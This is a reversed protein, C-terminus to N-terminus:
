KVLIKKGGKIYIGKQLKTVRRGSLDYVAENSDTEGATANGIGTPISGAPKLRWINGVVEINETNYTTITGQEATPDTCRPNGGYNTSLTVIDNSYKHVLRFSAPAVESAIIQFPAKEGVAVEGEVPVINKVVGELVANQGFRFSVISKANAANSITYTTDSAATFVWKYHADDATLNNWILSDTASAAMAMTKEPQAVTFDRYASLIYYAKNPDFAITEEGALLEVAAACAELDKKAVADKIAALQTATYGGVCDETYTYQAYRVLAASDEQAQIEEDTLVREFVFRCNADNLSGANNWFKLDTNQGGGHRSISAHPTGQYVLNFGDGNDKFEFYANVGDTIESMLIPTAENSNAATVAVGAGRAKNYIVVSGEEGRVFAWQFNDAMNQDVSQAMKVQAEAPQAYAYWGNSKMNYFTTGEAFQGDAITTTKVPLPVEVKEYVLTIVEDQTVTYDNYDTTLLKYGRGIESATPLTLISGKELRVTKTFFLEADAGNGTVCNITVTPWAEYYLTFDVSEETTEDLVFPTGAAYTDGDPADYEMLTYYQLSAHTPFAVTDGPVVLATIILDTQSATQIPSGTAQDVCYFTVPVTLKNEIEPLYIKYNSNGGTAGWGVFNEGGQAVPNGNFYQGNADAINYLGNAADSVTVTFTGAESGAATTAKLPNGSFNSMKGGSAGALQFQVGGATQQLNTVTWIFAGSAPTGTELQRLGLTNDNSEMLYGQRGNNYFVVKSGEQLQSLDAVATGLDVLIDAAKTTPMGTAFALLVLLFSYIKKM